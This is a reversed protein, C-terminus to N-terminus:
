STTIFQLTFIKSNYTNYIIIFKLIFIKPALLRTLPLSGYTSFWQGVWRMLQLQTLTALRSQPPYFRPQIRLTPDCQLHVASVLSTRTAVTHARSVAVLCSEEHGLTVLSSFCSNLAPAGTVKFHESSSGGTVSSRRMAKRHWCRRRWLRDGFDVALSPRRRWSITAVFSRISGAGSPVRHHPSGSLM